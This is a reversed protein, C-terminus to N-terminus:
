EDAGGKRNAQALSRQAARKLIQVDSDAIPTEYTNRDAAEIALELLAKEEPGIIRRSIFAARIKNAMFEVTEKNTGLSLNAIEVFTNLAM